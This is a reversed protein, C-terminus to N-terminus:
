GGFPNFHQQIYDTLDTLAQTLWYKVTDGIYNVIQDPNDPFSVKGIIVPYLFFFGATALKLARSGTFWSLIFLGALIVLPSASLLDTM